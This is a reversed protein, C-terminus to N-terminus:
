IEELTPPLGTLDLSVRRLLTLKDAEASPRLREKELRALIFRDIPTRVWKGDKVTALKPHVPAKFAWHQRKDVLQISASEPWDAGQDIWARLLGVEHATLRDGKKPMVSDPKTGTVFQILLSQDSKTPFIAPVLEGGRLSM